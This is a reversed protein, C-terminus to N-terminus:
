AQRLQSGSVPGVPLAISEPRIRWALLHIRTADRRLNGLSVATVSRTNRLAHRDFLLQRPRQNAEFQPPGGFKRLAGGAPGVQQAQREPGIEQDVRIGQGVIRPHRRDPAEPGVLAIFHAVHEALPLAPRKGEREALVVVFTQVVEFRLGQPDALAHGDEFAVSPSVREAYDGAYHVSRDDSAEAIRSRPREPTPCPSTSRRGAWQHPM